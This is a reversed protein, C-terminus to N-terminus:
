LEISRTKKDSLLKKFSSITFFFAPRLDEMSFIEDVTNKWSFWSPSSKFREKSKIFWLMDMHFYRLGLGTEYDMYTSVINGCVQQLIMEALNIGAYFCIKATGNIRPNIEMIKAVGDRPDRIIDLSAYGVWKISKMLRICDLQIREDKITVNMTSSGGNLPYWRVKNMLLFFKCEGDNGMLLEVQYQEGTQPIYEQVLSPGFKKETLIFHNDLEERSNVINFGKAGYSTRPKIVLPFDWKLNKIDDDQNLIATRPCPIDNDMCYVMTQLKDIAKSYIDWDNVYIFAYRSLETKHRSLMTAFFDQMPIVVDYIGREIEKKVGIYSADEDHLDVSHIVKYDTYKYHYAVDIKSGCYATVICGLQHFGKIMPLSQRSGGDIILVKKGKYSMEWNNSM